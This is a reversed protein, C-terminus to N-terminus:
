KSFVERRLRLTSAAPEIKIIPLAQMSDGEGIIAVTISEAVVAREAIVLPDHKAAEQYASFLEGSQRVKTM